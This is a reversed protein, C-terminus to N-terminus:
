HGPALVVYGLTEFKVFGGFFKDGFPSWTALAAIIVASPAKFKILLVTDPCGPDWLLYSRTQLLPM